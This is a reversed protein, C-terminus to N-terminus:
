PPQRRNQCRAIQRVPAPESKVFQVPEGINAAQIVAVGASRELVIM